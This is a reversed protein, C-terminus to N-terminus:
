KSKAQNAESGFALPAVGQVAFVIGFIRFLYEWFLFQAVSWWDWYRCEQKQSRNIYELFDTQRNQQLFIPPGITPIYLDSLSVIFPFIPVSAACNRKESCMFRFKKATYRRPFVNRPTVAIVFSM